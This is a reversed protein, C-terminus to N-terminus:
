TEPDTKVQSVSNYDHVVYFLTHYQAYMQLLDTYFVSFLM